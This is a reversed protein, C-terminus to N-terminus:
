EGLDNEFGSISIKWKKGPKEINFELSNWERKWKLFHFYLFENDSRNNTLTGEEWYWESPFNRTGDEWDYRLGPTSFQDKFYAKRSYPLFLWTLLKKSFAPHNKFKVFLDSFAKEDFCHHKDDEFAQKWNNLELYINRYEPINRCIFFHGSVRREYASFFHHKALIGSTLFNRINGFVLDIDCFGWFDYGKLDDEHICPFAPRIDCVKYASEPHFEINLKRSVLIKYDSFTLKKYHINSPWDEPKENDSYFIFDITPNAKCSAIFYDMWFPFPGFYPIIFAISKM